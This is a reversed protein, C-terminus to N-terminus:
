RARRSRDLATTTPWILQNCKTHQRSKAADWVICCRIRLIFVRMEVGGLPCVIVCVLSFRWNQQAAEASIGQRPDKGPSGRAGAVSDPQESETGPRSEIPDVAFRRLLESYAIAIQSVTEGPQRLDISAVDLSELPDAREVGTLLSRVRGGRQCRQRDIHRTRSTSSYRYLDGKPCRYFM